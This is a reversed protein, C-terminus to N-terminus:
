ENENDWRRAEENLANVTADVLVRYQYDDQDQSGAGGQPIWLKRTSELFNDVSVATLHATLVDLLGDADKSAVYRAIADRVRFIAYRYTDAENLWRVALPSVDGVFNLHGRILRNWQEEESVDQMLINILAPLQALVDKFTYQVKDSTYLRMTDTNQNYQFNEAIYDLVDKRVMMMGVHRRDTPYPYGVILRQEHIAEWFLEEGFEDRSVAIDHSENEGVPLEVLHDKIMQMVLSLGVGSSDEGGGYGGYKSYFPMMIPSYYGTAYCLNNDSTNNEVMAFVVVEQGELIHLNSIGCTQNWCGM